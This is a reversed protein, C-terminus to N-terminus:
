SISLKVQMLILHMLPRNIYVSIISLMISLKVQFNNITQKYLCFISANIIHYMGMLVLHLPPTIWRRMSRYNISQPELLIHRRVRRALARLGHSL